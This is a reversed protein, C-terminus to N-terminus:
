NKTANKVHQTLNCRESTGDMHFIREGVVFGANHEEGQWGLRDYIRERDIMTGPFQDRVHPPGGEVFTSMSAIAQRRAGTVSAAAPGMLAPVFEACQVPFGPRSRRDFGLVRAGHRAAERAASAGAPGLGVVLIDCSHHDTKAAM